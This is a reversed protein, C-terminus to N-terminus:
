VNTSSQTLSITFAKKDAAVEIDQSGVLNIVASKGEFALTAKVTYKGFAIKSGTFAVGPDQKPADLVIAAGGAAPTLTVTAKNFGAEVIDSANPINAAKDLQLTISVDASGKEPTTKSAGGDSSLPLVTKKLQDLLKMLRGSYFGAMFAFLILGHNVGIDIGNQTKGRVFSYTLVLVLTVAPAYFIKAVQSSIESPDFPGIDDDTQGKLKFQNALSVYYILSTLVGLISWFVTEWYMNPGGLWFYSDVKFRESLIYSTVDKTNLEILIADLDDIQNDLITQASCNSKPSKQENIPHTVRPKNTTDINEATSDSKQSATDSTVQPLACGKVEGGLTERLFAEIMEARKKRVSLVNEKSGAPPSNDGNTTTDPARNDKDKGGGSAGAAAGGKPAPPTVTSQKMDKALPLLSTAKNEDPYINVLNTFVKTQDDNLAVYEYGINRKNHTLLYVVITIVQLSCLIALWWSGKWWGANLFPLKENNNSSAM